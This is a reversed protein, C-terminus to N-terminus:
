PGPPITHRCDARSSRKSPGTRCRSSSRLCARTVMVPRGPYWRSGGAPRRILQLQMLKQEIRQNLGEVGFPGERLACLLQYRGFSALIDAPAADEAVQQLFDRYGAAIENLM